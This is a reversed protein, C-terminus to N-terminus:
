SGTRSCPVCEGPPHTGDVTLDLRDRDFVSCGELVAQIERPMLLPPPRARPQEAGSGVVFARGDVPMM